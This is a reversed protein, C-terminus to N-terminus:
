RAGAKRLLDAVTANGGRGAYDLTSGGPGRRRPDAGRGLLLETMDADGNMAAAMLPTVGNSDPRDPWWGMDLLQTAAARDRFMVATMVDNYVLAPGTAAPPVTVVEVPPAATRPARPQPQAKPAPTEEVPGAATVVPEPRPAPRAKTAPAAAVKAPPTDPKAPAPAPVAAAPKADAAAPKAPAAPPQAPKIQATAAPAPAAAPKPAPAPDKAPPTAAVKPAAEPAPPAGAPKPPTSTAVAPGPAPKDVPPITVGGPGQVQEIVPRPKVVPKQAAKAQRELEPLLVSSSYYYIGAVTLVVAVVTAAVAKALHSQGTRLVLTSVIIDHLAQKRSTFAALLFGICLPIASIIKALTRLLARVFSLRQGSFDSVQLGLLQKGFTAQRGSSEMLPWYLLSALVGIWSVVDAMAPDVAFAAIVLALTPITLIANDIVLAAFRAWFGGYMLEGGSSTVPGDAPMELVAKQGGLM